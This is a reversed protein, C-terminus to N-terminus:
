YSRSGNSKGKDYPGRMITGSTQPFGSAMRFGLGQIGSHYDIGIDVRKLVGLKQSRGEWFFIM